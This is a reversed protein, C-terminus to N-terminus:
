QFTTTVFTCGWASSTRSQTVKRGLPIPNLSVPLMGFAKEAVKVLEGHDVGDAGVLVM